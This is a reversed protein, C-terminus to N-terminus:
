IQYYRYVKHIELKQTEKKKPQCGSNPQIIGMNELFDWDKRTFKRMSELWRHRRKCAQHKQVRHKVQVKMGAPAPVEAPYMPIGYVVGITAFWRTELITKPDHQGCIKWTGLKEIKNSTAIFPKLLVYQSIIPIHNPYWPSIYGDTVSSNSQKPTDSIPPNYLGGFKGNSHAMLFIIICWHISHPFKGVIGISLLVYKFVHYLTRAFSEHTGFPRSEICSAGTQLRGHGKATTVSPQGM